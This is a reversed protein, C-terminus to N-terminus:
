SAALPLLSMGSFFVDVGLPLCADVFPCDPLLPPKSPAIRAALSPPVVQDADCWAEVDLRLFAAM